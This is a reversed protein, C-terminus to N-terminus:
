RLGAGQRVWRGVLEREEDTMETLNGMPMTRTAVVVRYLRDAQARIQEPTDLLVGQAAQAFMQNTPTASHCPGCRRVIVVRVDVFPVTQGRASASAESRGRAVSRPQSIIALAVMGMAAAPLIWVNKRGQNRLNFYHRTAAGIVVLGALLLWNWPSGYTEPYHNSLMIFLVPLTVYNNHLSRLTAQRGLEANPERGQEMASVMERQSPIIVRFVNAAMVTGLMAGVHIYAARASFVRTLGWAAGALLVLGLLLLASPRQALRTRCLVDYVLWGALLTGLGIAIAAGVSLYAVQPDILYAGAQLYYILVLLAMGSIWTAYAEWKFWHLTPPLREPAVTYKVMRYFGGGHVSWLEGAVGREPRTPAAIRSNLWNFYFSTGIWAIGTIVHVWRLTLNLWQSLHSEM